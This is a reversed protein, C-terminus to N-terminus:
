LPTEEVHPAQASSPLARPRANRVNERIDDCLDLYLNAMDEFMAAVELPPTRDHLSLRRVAEEHIASIQTLYADYIKSDPTQGPQEPRTRM